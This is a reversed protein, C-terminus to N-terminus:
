SGNWFITIEGDASSVVSDTPKNDRSAEAKNKDDFPDEKEPKLTKKFSESRTLGNQFKVTNVRMIQPKARIAQTAHVVTHAQEIHSEISTRRSIDGLYSQSRISDQNSQRHDEFPNRSSAFTSVSAHRGTDADLMSSQTRSATPPIFAIPIVGSIANSSRGSQIMEEEQRSTINRNSHSNAISKKLALPITNKKKKRHIFFFGVGFVLAGGGVLGGVLGGILGASSSNKSTTNSSLGIAEPSMCKPEPCVGQSTMTGVVCITGNSCSPSCNKACSEAKISSAFLLIIFTFISCKM